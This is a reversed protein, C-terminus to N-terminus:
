ILALFIYRAIQRTLVILVEYRETFLKSRIYLLMMMKRILMSSQTVFDFVSTLLNMVVSELLSFSHHKLFDCICPIQRNM